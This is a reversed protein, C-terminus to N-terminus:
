RRLRRVVPAGGEVLKDGMSGMWATWKAMSAKGEELTAPAKGGHYVYLFRPM